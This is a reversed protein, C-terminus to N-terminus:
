TTAENVDIVGADFDLNIRTFSDLPNSAVFPLFVQFPPSGPASRRPTATPAIRRLTSTPAIGAIAPEAFRVSNFLSLGLLSFLISVILLMRSKGLNM